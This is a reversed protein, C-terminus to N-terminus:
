GHRWSGSPGALVPDVGHSIPKYEVQVESDPPRCSQRDFNVQRTGKIVPHTFAYTLFRLLHCCHSLSFFPLLSYVMFILYQIHEM